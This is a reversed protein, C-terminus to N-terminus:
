ILVYNLSWGDPIEKVEYYDIMWIKEDVDFFLLTMHTTNAGTKFVAIGIALGSWGPISLKGYTRLAFDDCDYIETVYEFRGHLEVDRSLFREMESKTTLSYNRDMTHVQVGSLNFRSDILTLLRNKNTTTVTTPPKTLKLKDHLM